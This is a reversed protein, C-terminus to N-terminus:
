KKQFAAQSIKRVADQTQPSLIAGYTNWANASAQAAAQVTAPKQLTVEKEVEQKVQNVEVLESNYSAAEDTSLRIKEARDPTIAVFNVDNSGADLVMIGAVLPVVFLLNFPDQAINSLDSSLDFSLDDIAVFDIGALGLFCAGYLDAILAGPMVLESSAIMAQSQQPVCLATLALIGTLAVATKKNFSKKSKKSNKSNM